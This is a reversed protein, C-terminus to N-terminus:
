NKIPLSIEIQAGGANRASIEGGHAKVIRKAISLGLGAGGGGRAKDGRYMTDFLHPLDSEAFGPGSDTITIRARSAVMSYEIRVTGGDPTHRFANDLVNELARTLLHQDCPLSFESPRGELTIAIGSRDARPVLGDVISQLMAGISHQAILPSEDLYELRSFTFLDAKEVAVGLYRAQREPDRAFSQSLAELSGRLAFLPTRLDHAVAAIFMRRQNELDDRQHNVATLHASMNSVATNLTAVERISSPPLEGVDSGQAIRTTASSAAELPAIVHRRIRMGLVSITALATLVLTGLVVWPRIGPPPGETAPTSIRARYVKGDIDRTVNRVIWTTDTDIPEVSAYAEDDDIQLRVRADDVALHDELEDVWAADQWRDTHDFLFRQVESQPERPGDTPAFLAFGIALASGLPVLVLAALALGLWRRVSWTRM